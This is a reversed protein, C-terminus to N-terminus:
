VTMECMKCICLFNFKDREANTKMHLHYVQLLM